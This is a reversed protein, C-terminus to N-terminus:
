LQFAALRCYASTRTGTTRVIGQPSMSQIEYSDNTGLRARRLICRTATDCFRGFIVAPVGGIFTNNMSRWLRSWQPQSTSLSNQYNRLTDNFPVTGPIRRRSASKYLTRHQGQMALGTTPVFQSFPSPLEHRRIDRDQRITSSVRLLHTSM